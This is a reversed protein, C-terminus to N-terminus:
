HYKKSVQFSKQPPSSNTVKPNDPTTENTISDTVPTITTNGASTGKKDSEVVTTQNKNLASTMNTLSSNEVGFSNLIKPLENRILDKAM